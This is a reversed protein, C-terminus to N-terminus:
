FNINVRGGLVFVGDSKTSLFPNFIYQANFTLQLAPTVAFNYYAELGTENNFDDGTEGLLVEVERLLDVTGDAIDLYYWGFGFQDYERGPIIGKAGIGLSYFSNIFNSDSPGIGFRGFIGLGRPTYFKRAQKESETTPEITFLYQDFNMFM